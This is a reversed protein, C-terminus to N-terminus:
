KSFKISDIITQAEARVEDPTGAYDTVLVVLRSGNVDIIRTHWVNGPGLAYIGGILPLYSGTTSGTARDCSAFDPTSPLRLDVQKGAHGDITVDTPITSTYATNARIDAVLDDVTPGVVQEGPQIPDGTGAKDWHCPDDYAGSAQFFVMGLGLPADYDSPGALGFGPIGRWGDPVTLTITTGDIHDLTYTGAKLLSDPLPQVGQSPSPTVTPTAAPTASPSASPAPGGIGDSGAPLLNYGILAVLVVAAIAAGAKALPNM